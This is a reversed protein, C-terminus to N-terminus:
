GDKNEWQEVTLLEDPEYMGLRRNSWRVGYYGKPSVGLGEIITGKTGVPIVVRDDTCEADPNGYVEQNLEFKNSKEQWEIDEGTEMRRSITVEVKGQYLSEYFGSLEKAISRAKDIAKISDKETAFHHKGNIDVNIRYWM